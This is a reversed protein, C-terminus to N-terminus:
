FFSILCEHLSVTDHLNNQRSKYRQFNFIASKGLYIYLSHLLLLLVFPLLVRVRRCSGTTPVTATNPRIRDRYISESFSPRRSLLLSRGAKGVRFARLAVPLRCLLRRNTYAARQEIRRGSVTCHRCGHMATETSSTSNTPDDHTPQIYTGWCFELCCSNPSVSMCYLIFVVIIYHVFYTILDGTSFWFGVAYARQSACCACCNTKPPESSEREREAAHLM